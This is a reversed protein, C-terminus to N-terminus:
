NYPPGRSKLLIITDVVTWIILSHDENDHIWSFQQHINQKQIITNGGKHRNQIRFLCLIVFLRLSESRIKFMQLQITWNLSAIKRQKHQNERMVLQLHGTRPTYLSVKSWPPSATPANGEWDTMTCHCGEKHLSLHPPSHCVPPGWGWESGTGSGSCVENGHSQWSSVRNQKPVKKSQITGKGM